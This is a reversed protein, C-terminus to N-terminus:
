HSKLTKSDSFIETTIGTLESNGVNQFASENEIGGDGINLDEYFDIEEFLPAIMLNNNDETAELQDIFEDEYNFLNAVYEYVSGSEDGTNNINLNDFLESIGIGDLEDDFQEVPVNNNVAIVANDNVASM